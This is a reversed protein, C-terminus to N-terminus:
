RLATLPDVAPSPPLHRKLLVSAELWCLHTSDSNSFEFSPWPPAHSDHPSDTQCTWCHHLHRYKVVQLGSFLGLIRKQSPVFPDKNTESYPVKLLPMNDIQPPLPRSLVITFSFPFLRMIGDPCCRSCHLNLYEVLILYLVLLM